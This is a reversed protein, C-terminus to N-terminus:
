ITIINPNILRSTYNNETKLEINYIPAKAQVQSICHIYLYERMNEQTEVRDKVQVHLLVSSIFFILIHMNCLCLHASGATRLGLENWTPAL